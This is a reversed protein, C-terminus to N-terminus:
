LNGGNQLRHRSYYTPLNVVELITLVQKTNSQLDSKVKMVYNTMIAAIM